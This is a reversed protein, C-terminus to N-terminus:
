YTYYPKTMYVDDEANYYGNGKDDIIVLGKTPIHGTLTTGSYSTGLNTGSEIYGNSADTLVYKYLGYSSVGDSALNIATYWINGSPDFTADLVNNNLGAGTNPLPTIVSGDTGGYFINCFAATDPNLVGVYYFHTPSAFIRTIDWFATYSLVITPPTNRISGGAIYTGDDAINLTSKQIGYNPPIVANNM